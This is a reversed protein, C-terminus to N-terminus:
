LLFVLCSIFLTIFVPIKVPTFGFLKYAVNVVTLMILAPYGAEIFPGSTALIKSLGFNSILATIGLVILLAQVYSIKNNLITQQVYEASVATLAIITSYCAMLVALAIIIAGHSGLIRFSLASFLEGENLSELGLGHFVGLYSMGFYIIGLLSVGLLGSKFGMIALKKLSKESHDKLNDKLITIVISSFFIAGLVDLTNYGVKISEWFLRLGTINLAHTPQGRVLLGKVIIITLSILLLPSIIYGLLSIIRNEKYTGLFTVALFILTFLILSINGLFPAVMIHSLTVIRPMAVLPGIILLCFLAFCAGPIKGLRDFFEKYNGNFLIIAILGLLPLFVGTLMFGIIAWLNKQGAILGVKLPFILNGAGFFMSFIALGTAITQSQFFRKM